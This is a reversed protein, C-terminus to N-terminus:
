CDLINVADDDTIKKEMSSHLQKIASKIEDAMPHSEDGAVFRWSENNVSVMSYGAVVKVGEEKALRRVRTALDWMGNAAYMGSALMYNASHTPQLELVRSAADEGVETNRFNRCARLLSGWASPSDELTGPVSKILDLAMELNGSRGLMDVLIAYHEKGPQIGYEEVMSKFFSLGEDILGQHSCASLVSLATVDNPKMNERKMAAVLALGERALGNIGYGAVMASWTIVNRGSIKNFIKIASKTDSCKCYMDVIATSVAIEKNMFRRLAIAHGAKSKTLDACLSCAELLCLIIVANPEQLEWVMRGYLKLAEEPEGNLILGSIMIGWSVVNRQGTCDFIAQALGLRGCNMYADTLSNLLITNAEHRKRLARSHISKIWSLDCYFKCINLMNVLTVEDYEIGEDQM